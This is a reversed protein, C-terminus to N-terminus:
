ESRMRLLHLAPLQRRQVTEFSSPPGSGTDSPRGEHKSVCRLAATNTSASTRLRAAISRLMLALPASM